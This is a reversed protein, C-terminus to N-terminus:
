RAAKRSAPPVQFRRSWHQSNEPSSGLGFSAAASRRSARQWGPWLLPSAGARSAASSPGDRGPARARASIRRRPSPRSRAARAAATRNSRASRCWAAPWAAARASRCGPRCTRRRVRAVARIRSRGAVSTCTGPSARPRAPPQGLALDLVHRHQGVPLLQDVIAVSGEGVLLGLLEADEEEVALVHQDGVLDLLAARDVVRRDIRALDDLAGEVCRRASIRTCLWGEPSGLGDRSSMSIVLSIRFAASASPM